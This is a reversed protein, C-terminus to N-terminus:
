QRSLLFEQLLGKAAIFTLMRFAERVTPPPTRKGHEYASVNPQYTGLLEALDSQSLDYKSRLEKM